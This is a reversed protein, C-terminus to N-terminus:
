RLLAVPLPWLRPEVGLAAGIVRCLQPTSVTEPDAIHFVNGAVSPRTAALLVADALNRVGVFQRRNAIAAFPLPIGRRIANVLTTINGRMGPGIVAPPRLVAIEMNTRTLLAML